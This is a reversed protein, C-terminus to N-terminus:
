PGLGISVSPGQESIRNRDRTSCAARLVFFAGRFGAAAEIPRFGLARTWTYVHYM